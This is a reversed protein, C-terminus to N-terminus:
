FPLEKLCKPCIDGASTVIKSCGELRCFLFEEVSEERVEIDNFEEPLKGEKILRETHMIAFANWAVAAIHDEDRQGDLYRYAHRLLSDMYSALPQGKEWNRDGYKKAGAEYLLALRRLGEPSVLDYRGKGDRIDRVSGTSFSRRDGSDKLEFGDNKIESM